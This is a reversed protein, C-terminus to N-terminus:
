PCAFFSVGTLDSNSFKSYRLNAKTF